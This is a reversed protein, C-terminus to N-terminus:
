VFDTEPSNFKNHILNKFHQIRNGSISLHSPLPSRLQQRLFIDTIPFPFRHRKAVHIQSSIVPTHIHM